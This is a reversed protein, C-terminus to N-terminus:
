RLVVDHILQGNISSWILMPEPNQGPASIRPLLGTQQPRYLRFKGPAGSRRPFRFMSDDTASMVVQYGHGSRITRFNIQQLKTRLEHMTGPTVDYKDRLFRLGQGLFELRHLTTTVTDPEQELAFEKWAQAFRKRDAGGFAQELAAKNSAGDRLLRLYRVFAAKRRDHSILFYVVSWSQHYLLEARASGSTVIDHWDDNSMMLLDDFEMATGNQLAARVTAIRDANVLGLKFQQRVVLGDEFYQALGENAWASINPGIHSLAFQHFGEHQLVSFTEMQSRGSTWTALGQILPTLIFMGGTNQANVGRDRMYSIYQDQTEFLYLPMPKGLDPGFNEFRKKYERFIGDMHNAFVKAQRIPLNSYITYARSKYTKLRTQTSSPARAAGSAIVVATLLAIAAPITM